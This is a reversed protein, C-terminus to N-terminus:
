YKSKMQLVLPRRNPTPQSLSAVGVTALTGQLCSIITVLYAWNASSIRSQLEQQQKKNKTKEIFVFTRQFSERQMLSAMVAM